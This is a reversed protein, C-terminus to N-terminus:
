LVACAWQIAFVHWDNDRVSLHLMKDSDGISAVFFYGIQAGLLDVDLLTRLYANVAAHEIAGFTVKDFQLALAATAYHQENFSDCGDGQGFYAGIEDFHEVFYLM